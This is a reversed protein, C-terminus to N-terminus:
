DLSSARSGPSNSVIGHSTCTGAARSRTMSASIALLFAMLLLDEEDGINEAVRATDHDAVKFPHLVELSQEPLLLFDRTPLTLKQVTSELADQRSALTFVQEIARCGHRYTDLANASCFFCASQKGLLTIESFTKNHTRYTPGIVSRIKQVTPGPPDGGFNM